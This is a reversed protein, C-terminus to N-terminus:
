HDIRLDMHHTDNVREVNFLSKQSALLVPVPCEQLLTAHEDRNLVTESKCCKGLVSFACNGKWDYFPVPKSNASNQNPATDHETVMSVEVYNFVTEDTIGAITGFYEQRLHMQKFTIHIVISQLVVGCRM